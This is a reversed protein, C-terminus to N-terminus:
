AGTQLQHQDEGVREDICGLGPELRAPSPKRDTASPGRAIEDDPPGEREHSRKEGRAVKAVDDELERERAVKTGEEVEVREELPVAVVHKDVECPLRVEAPARALLEGAPKAPAGSAAVLRPDEGDVSHRTQAPGDDGDAEGHQERSAVVRAEDLNRRPPSDPRQEADAVRQHEYRHEDGDPSRQPLAPGRWRLPMTCGS